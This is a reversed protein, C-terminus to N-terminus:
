SKEDKWERKWPKARQRWDKSAGRRAFKLAM